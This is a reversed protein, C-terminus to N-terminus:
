WAVLEKFAPKGQPPLTCKGDASSVPKPEWNWFFVGALWKKGASVEILAKYCRAQLEGNYPSDGIYKWPRRAAHDWSTYRRGFAGRILGRDFRMKGLSVRQQSGMLKEWSLLDILDRDPM